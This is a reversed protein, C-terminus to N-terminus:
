KFRYILNKLDSLTHLGAQKYLKKGDKFVMLTPVSQIGFKQAIAPNKDVDVKIIKVDDGSVSALQSLIPSQTKCPGCWTAFFDVIVPKQEDILKEFQGKM